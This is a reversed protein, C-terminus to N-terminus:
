TRRLVAASGYSGGFGTVLAFEPDVVQNAQAEGRLQRVAELVNNLGHVYGESLLGGHPNVPVPGKPDTGGSRVLEGAEGPRCFGLDELQQLVIPSYADYLLSVDVDAPRLGATEWLRDALYHTFIWSPDPAKDMGTAGPGGGRVVAHVVPSGPRAAGAASVVLAAAGDTEQCCDARRLPEAIWPEGLYDESTMGERRLARPNNVALRRSALVVGELDEPRAATLHMWRSTSLAFLAIPGAMGYPHLFQAEAGEGLRLGAQGMRQGSRGNLARLVLVNRATGSDVLMAADGLISASQTGGGYIENTWVAPPVGLARAVDNVPVSDGLHYLLVGDIDAPALRADALAAEAAEVAQDLVSRGSRRSLKTMGIGAVAARGSFAQRAAM